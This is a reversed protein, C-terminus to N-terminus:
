FAALLGWPAILLLLLVVYIRRTLHLHVMPREPSRSIEIIHSSKRDTQM